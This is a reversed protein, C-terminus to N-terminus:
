NNFGIPVIRTGLKSPIIIHSINEGAVKFTAMTQVPSCYGGGHCEEPYRNHAKAPLQM